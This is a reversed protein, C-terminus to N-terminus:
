NGMKIKSDMYMYIHIYIYRPYIYIYGSLHPHRMFNPYMELNSAIKIPFSDSLDQPYGTIGIATIFCGRQFYSLWNPHHCEWYIPFYFMNWVVLWNKEASQNLVLIGTWLIYEHVIFVLNALYYLAWQDSSVHPAMWLQLARAIPVLKLIKLSIIIKAIRVDLNWQTKVHLPGLIHTGWVM